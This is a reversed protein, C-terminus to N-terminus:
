EARWTQMTADHSSASFSRRHRRGSRTARRAPEHRRAPVPPRPGPRRVCRVATDDGLDYVHLTMHKRGPWRLRRHSSAHSTLSVGRLAPLCSLHTPGAQEPSSGRDAFEAYPPGVHRSPRRRGSARGAWHAVTRDKAVLTLRRCIFRAGSSLPRRLRVARSWAGHGWPV